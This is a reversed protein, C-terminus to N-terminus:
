GRGSKRDQKDVKDGNSKPTTDAAPEDQEMKTLTEFTKLGVNIIYEERGNTIRVYQLKKGMVNAHEFAKATLTKM